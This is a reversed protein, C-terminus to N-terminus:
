AATETVERGVSEFYRVRLATALARHVEPLKSELVLLVKVEPPSNPQDIRAQAELVATYKVVQYLGREYDDLNGDSTRSKVEVGVWLRDSKFMVDIKDGSRLAYEEQSFGGAPVDFFEPNELVFRKMAKHAESEGGAWGGAGTSGQGAGLPPEVPPLNALRLIENWRSGFALIRQYEIGVRARKDDRSLLEYGPWVNGVGSGPLGAKPGTTASHVVVATLLPPREPWQSSAQEILATVRGLVHGLGRPFPKGHKDRRGLMEALASYTVTVLVGDRQALVHAVLLRFAVPAYEDASLNGEVEQEILDEESEAADGENDTGGESDTEEERIATTDEEQRTVDPREATTEVLEFLTAPTNPDLDTEINKRQFAEEIHLREDLDMKRLGIWAQLQHARNLYFHKVKREGQELAARQPEAEYGFVPKRLAIARDLNDRAAEGHSIAVGKWERSRGGLRVFRRLRNEQPDFVDVIFDVWLTCVLAQDDHTFANWPTDVRAHGSSRWYTDHGCTKLWFEHSNATVDPIARM